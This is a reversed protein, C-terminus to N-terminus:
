LTDVVVVVVRMRVLVRVRVCVCSLVDAPILTMECSLLPPLVRLRMDIPKALAVLYQLHFSHLSLDPATTSSPTTYPHATSPPPTPISISPPLPAPLSPPVVPLPLWSILRSAFPIVTLLAARVVIVVIVVALAAAIDAPVNAATAPTTAATATRTGCSAWCYAGTDEGADAHHPVSAAAVEPVHLEVRGALEM